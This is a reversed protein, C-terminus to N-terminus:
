GFHYLMNPYHKGKCCGLKCTIFLFKKSFLNNCGITHCDSVVWHAAQVCLVGVPHM